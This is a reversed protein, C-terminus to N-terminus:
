NGEITIGQTVLTGVIAIQGQMQCAVPPAPMGGVTTVQGEKNASLAGGAAQLGGADQWTNGGDLSIEFLVVISSATDLWGAREIVISLTSYGAAIDLPPLTLTGTYSGAPFSNIVAM